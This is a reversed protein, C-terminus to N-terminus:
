EGGAKQEDENFFFTSAVGSVNLRPHELNAKAVKMNLKTINVIRSLNAVRDFFVGVDHYTGSFELVIQQESYFGRNVKKGRKFKRIELGSKKGRTTIDTLLAPLESSAPLKRLAEELERQLEERKKKFSDLNSAVAKASQIDAEVKAIQRDVTGLRTRAGSHLTFFYIAVIVLGIGAYVGFRAPAPLGELQKLLKQADFNEGIAM